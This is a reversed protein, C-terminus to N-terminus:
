VDITEGAAVQRHRPRADGQHTVRAVTDCGVEALAAIRGELRHVSATFMLSDCHTLVTVFTHSVNNTQGLTCSAHPKLKVNINTTKPLHRDQVPHPICSGSEFNSSNRPEAHAAHRNSLM